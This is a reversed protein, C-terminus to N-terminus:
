EGDAIRKGGLYDVALSMMARSGVALAPEHIYFLPSHNSPTSALDAGPPTVGLFFFLSPAEQAYYAFDEAGTQPAIVQVREAGAVRRLTPLMRETLQPDNKVVPNSGKSMTVIAEAGSAAAIAGATRQLRGIADNRVGPDFTRITGLMELRDPIINSRVGGDIKGVTVVVPLETIDMQRSVITQLGMVIQAGAVIPDVGSWPRSGHSQRGIVEIRFADSGAMFPGSRYGIAGSPLAAAVHLGFVAEPRPNEFLGERLMMSAGGDEGEPAGEEAPQFIFLVKGPLDKRVSTLAQAVGMLIAVHADHGCAHMVGVKKGLYETTVTSKFPVDVQETVPLADMDARLAITPGPRGGELVATVGTHAVGTKVPLGLKRLHDAVLKSTRFERNSLEPHQHIDRRWAIVDDDVARVAKEIQEPSLQAYGAFPALCCLAAILTRLKM